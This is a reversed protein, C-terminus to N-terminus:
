QTPACVEKKASGPSDDSKQQQSGQQKRDPSSSNSNEASEERKEEVDNGTRGEDGRSEIGLERKWQSRFVALEDTDERCSYQFSM